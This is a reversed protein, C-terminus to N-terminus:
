AEVEGCADHAAKRLQSNYLIDAGVGFAGACVFCRGAFKSPMPRGVFGAAAAKAERERAGPVISVHLKGDLLALERVFELAEDAKGHVSIWAVSPWFRNLMVDEPLPNPM